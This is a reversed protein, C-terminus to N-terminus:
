AKMRRRAGALCVLGSGLLFMTTPEPVPSYTLSVADLLGGKMDSTGVAKFVLADPTDTGLVTYHYERWSLTNDLYGSISAVLAGHWWVEIGNSDAPVNPRPSYAFSLSYSQGVSTAVMQRIASNESSDLEIHQVADYSGGAGYHQVGIGAGSITTWGDISAYIVRGDFSLVPTEFSGNIILNAHALSAVALYVLGSAIGALLKKNMSYNEQPLTPCGFLHNSYEILLFRM